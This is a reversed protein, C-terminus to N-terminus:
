SLSKERSPCQHTKQEKDILLVLYVSIWVLHSQDDFPYFTAKKEVMHLWTDEIKMPFFVTSGQVCTQVSHTWKSM